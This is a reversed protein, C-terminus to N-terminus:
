YAGGEEPTAWNKSTSPSLPEFYMEVGPDSSTAAAAEGDPYVFQPGIDFSTPAPAPSDARVDPGPLIPSVPIQLQGVSAQPTSAAAGKRWRRLEQEEGRRWDRRPCVRLHLRFNLHLCLNVRLHM